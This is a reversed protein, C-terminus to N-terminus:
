WPNEKKLVHWGAFTWTWKITLVSWYKISVDILCLLSNRQRVNTRESTENACIYPNAASRTRNWNICSQWLSCKLQKAENLRYGHSECWYYRLLQYNGVYKVHASTARDVCARRASLVNWVNQLQWSGFSIFKIDLDIHCEITNQARITKDPWIHVRRM